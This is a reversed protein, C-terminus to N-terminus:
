SRKLFANLAEKIQSFELGMENEYNNHHDQKVMIELFAPGDCDQLTLLLPVLASLELVPEEALTYYGAAKAVQTLSVDFSCTPININNNNNEIEHNPFVGRNLVIHKLNLGVGKGNRIDQLSSLSGLTVASTISQLFSVDDEIIYVPVSPHTLAIGAAVGSVCGSEVPIDKQHIKKLKLLEMADKKENNNNNNSLLDLLSKDVLKERLTYLNKYITSLPSVFIAESSSQKLIQELCETTHLSLQDIIEQNNNQKLIKNNNNNESILVNEEMLVVFPSATTHMHYLAKDLVVDWYFQMDTNNNENENENNNNSVISYPIESCSLLNETLRHSVSLMTKENKNNKLTDNPNQNGWGVLLLCPVSYLRSHFLSHISKLTTGISTAEVYVCPINTKNNNEFSNNNNNNNEHLHNTLSHGLALSLATQEDYTIIHKRQNNNNNNNTLTYTQLYETLPTLPSSFRNPPVGYFTDIGNKKLSEVVYSPKLKNPINNNNISNLLPQLLFM